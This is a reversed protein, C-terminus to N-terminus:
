RVPEGISWDGPLLMRMFATPNKVQQSAMFASAEDCLARGREDRRLKGCIDRVASAYAHLGLQDFGEYATQLFEFARARDGNGAALGGLLVSSTPQGWPSRIRKLRKACSEVEGYVTRDRRDGLWCALAVRGRLFLAMITLTQWRLIFSKSMPKWDHMLRERALAYNGQYLHTEVVTVMAGYHQLHFGKKSWRELAATSEQLCEEPDDSILYAYHLYSVLRLSVEVNVDGRASGEKLLQPYLEHVRRLDGAWCLAWFLMVYGATLEWATGTCEERLFGVARNGHEIANHIEALLYDVYVVCLRNFGIANMNGTGEAIQRARRIIELAVKSNRPGDAVRISAEISLANALHIPERITAAALVYQIQFYTARVPDALTMVIGATRLLELRSLDHPEVKRTRPTPFGFLFRVRTCIRGWVIGAIAQRPGRVVRLGCEKALREILAMSEDFHGSRMLQDAALRRLEFAKQEQSEEAARLYAQASDYGRGAKGLTDALHQYLSANDRGWKSDLAVQFFLAARDFALQREAAEAAKLASEFAAKVNGSNQYHTVLLQAEVQPMGALTDALTAHLLRKKDPVLMAVVATRIQDHFAEVLKGDGSESIRVLNEQVLVTIAEAKDGDALNRSSAVSFLIQPTLPQAAICVYELIERAFQPLMAVRRRLFDHLTLDGEASATTTDWSKVDYALQQLFLPHGGGERLIAREIDKGLNKGAVITNVLLASENPNLSTLTVRRWMGAARQGTLMQHVYLLTPCSEIDESRYSLILLVHPAQLPTCLEALFTSSDRDGWQFDDIWIVASNREALRGILERLATFTRQRLEQKDPVISTNAPSNAIAKVRGLVPFLRPLLFAERPLLTRIEQDSIRLLCHTLDDVLADLGKFPVSEFELCRGKLIVMNPNQAAVVELFRRVTASKGIGSPGDLLMVRLNGLQVEGLAGELANIEQQRGIFTHGQSHKRPASSELENGPEAPSLLAVIEAARARTLPNRDLLRICLGKLDRPILPDLLRPDLSIDQQTQLSHAMLYASEPLEGVMAQFLVVGVSYWDSAAALPLRLAQEPSMYAPTGAFTMDRSAVDFERILGFDLLVVRGNPKVLVNSPKLDRHLHKAEHLTQVAQVLQLLVPRLLEFSCVGGPRCYELFDKGEVLEMTFFWQEAHSFLEHLRVLNKHRMERVARFERKFRLLVDPDRSHLVKAAVTARQESDWVEYVTGFAGSGLLRRREFRVTGKFPTCEMYPSRNPVPSVFSADTAGSAEFKALMRFVLERVGAHEGCAGEIFELRQEPPLDVACDFIRKAEENDV